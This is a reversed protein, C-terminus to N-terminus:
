WTEIKKTIKHSLLPWPLLIKVPLDSNGRSFVIAKRMPLNILENKDVPIDMVRELTNVQIPTMGFFTITNVTKIVSPHLDEPSQTSFEMRLMFKRGEKCIRDVWRITRYVYDKEDEDYIGRPFFNHAEDVLIMTPPYEGDRDRLKVNAIKSIIHFAVIRRATPSKIHDLRVVTVKGEQLIEEVNIDEVGKADFIGEEIIPAIRRIIAERTINSVLYNNLKANQLWEFFDELTEGVGYEFFEKVLKPLVIYGQPSLAPLYYQLQDFPIDKFKITFFKKGNGEKVKLEEVNDYASVWYLEILNEIKQPQVGMDDWIKKEFESVNKVDPTERIMGYEGHMDFVIVAGNLYNVFNYIDNKCKVTKGKGTTGCVLEHEFLLEERMRYVYFTEDKPNVIPDEGVIIIGYPIGSNPLGYIINLLGEPPIYVPARMHPAFNVSGRLIAGNLMRLTCIPEVGLVPLSEMFSLDNNKILESTLPLDMYFYNREYVQPDDLDYGFARIIGAIYEGRLFDYIIVPFGLRLSSVWKFQPRIWLMERSTKGAIISIDKPVTVFGIEELDGFWPLKLGKISNREKEIMKLVEEDVDRKEFFEDLTLNM